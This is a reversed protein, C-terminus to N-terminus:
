EKKKRILAFIIVLIFTIAYLSFLVIMYINSNAQNVTRLILYGLYIFYLILLTLGGMKNIKGILAFIFVVLTAALMIVMDIWIQNGVTLPNVTAAIGIVFLINFINSGIVNGLAIDNEGKKAAVVSTVLEPLSTGVAVITLGVLSEVLDKNLSALDGIGYAINKSGFVVAEGGLVIGIAGLIIYLISKSIKMEKIEEETNNEDVLGNKIQKKADHVLYWVYLIIGIVLIIGEIRLIAFTKVGNVNLGFLLTFITFVVSVLILIPYEKKCVSRKIIIPTFVASFGLVILLNCTNSGVINGMAVNANGGNILCTISDSVSVALEPCSTGFAVVTLGIIMPSIKMKRAISASGGVFIDSCKVLLFIGIVLLVLCLIWSYWLSMNLDLFMM